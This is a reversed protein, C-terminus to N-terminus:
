YIDNKEKLSALVEGLQERRYELQERSVIEDTRIMQNLTLLVSKIKRIEQKATLEHFHAM